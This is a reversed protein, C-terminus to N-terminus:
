SRTPAASTSCSTSARTPRAGGAVGPLRMVVEGASMNPLYGFSDMSIVDKVNDANRKETIQAANGEREGTVKFADLKYIGSTLDFNRTASIGTAVVVTERMSDLGLYSVVLQHTGVPVGNLTYRGANDTLTTLNRSPISVAAGELSNRTASNTVTGTITGVDAAHATALSLLIGLLALHLLRPLSRPTNM